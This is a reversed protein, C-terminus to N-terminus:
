VEGPLPKRGFVFHFKIYLHYAPNRMGKRPGIMMLQAQEQSLNLVRTFLAMSVPEIADVSQALFYLGQEKLKPDKPWRGLPVKYIVDQVDVFGADIMWQKQNDAVDMKKGFKESAEDVTKFWQVVETAREVSDDDSSVRVDHEQAEVWGGPRIHHYAQSYLRPWDRISGALVRWHVFDFPKSSQYPWEDEANDIIFVCNPPVWSPQIPSLDIGIVEASPYEDAAEIAWIGTGTGIDLIRQPNPDIPALLLKGGLILKFVHHKLDLRDQEMDDNPMVYEGTRFTHYRRGNEYTYSLVSSSLSATSSGSDDGFNSDSESPEEDVEVIIEPHPAPEPASDVATDGLPPAEEGSISM